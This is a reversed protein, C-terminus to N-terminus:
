RVEGCQERALQGVRALAAVFRDDLEHCCSLRIANRYKGSPSSLLGPILSINEAMAQHFLVECDVGDPMEVWVLFGGAPSTSRTGEPFHRAVLARVRAVQTAYRQRLTRLHHDYGGSELFLGVAESLVAPEAVSSVLKLKRIAEGFRGGELWGIRFDPALTKTYSSCLIVWGGTDFAKVSASPVACFQLEAYLADEILPVRYHNVLRALRKKEELPMTAGLPNQVTPMAVIAKLRGTALLAEVADVSMGREPDTPIEVVSLGLNSLLPLLNFYTPSELGVADGPRAVARLALQLAELCGHTLVIRDPDLTAGLRFGRRAIQTRLRASGPPLAYTSIMHPQRRLLQNVIKALRTVPYFHSGRPCALSLDIFDPNSQNAFVAGILDLVSTDTVRPEGATESGRRVPAPLGPRVFYGSRPRAEILGRDELLRYAALVTNRSVGRAQGSERVSPLRGGAPLAGRDIALALEDALQLYLIPDTESM